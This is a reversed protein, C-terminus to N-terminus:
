VGRFRHGWGRRAARAGLYQGLPWALALALARPLQRASSVFDREDERVWQTHRALTHSVSTVLAPLSQITELEFLRQLERHVSIGRRLEYWASREHSHVVQAAPAYVLHFGAGVVRRGWDLDEAIAVDGFPIRQWVERRLCSCVNDFVCVRMREHPTLAQFPERLYSRRADPSAALWAELNGRTVASAEPRPRQRAYTGAVRRDERLPAVLEHLWRTGLPLADQVILVVYDGRCSAVGANRTRGHGFEEPSIELLLDVRARLLEATGDSSGSDVAVVEVELDIVQAAIADLLAPLTEIGNRTVLLISVVERPGGAPPGSEPSSEKDQASSILQAYIAEWAQADDPVPRTEPLRARFREVLDPEDLFRQLHDRLEAASSPDYILGNVEHTVLEPIGGSRAGVVPVGAMSAEQIVLPANEPWISCCVLVDMGAYVAAAEDEHFGGHFTVPLGRALARLRETYAPFTELAGYITLTWGSGPLRAVAELLVHLGKHWVLTGVFGIRLPASPARAARPPAPLRPLGYPSVRLKAAPVGLAAFSDALARSPSSFVEVHAVVQELYELRRRVDNGVVPGALPARAMVRQGLGAVLPLRRTVKQLLPLLQTAQVSELRGAAMQAYFPSERFCRACREPDIVECLHEEKVHVRQGGSPCALTHDHLTMVVPIGRARALAPLDHSLNLLSHLHLLDPAEEDLVQGLRENLLEPRYTEQLSRFRWLNNLEVVPIGGYERRLVAGHPRKPDYSACLLSVQHRRGVEQALYCAYLESGARHLPLFDHIAFLVKM